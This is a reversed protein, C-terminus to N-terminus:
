EVTKQMYATILKKLLQNYVVSFTARQELVNSMMWGSKVKV